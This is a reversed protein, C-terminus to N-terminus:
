CLNTMGGLSWNVALRWAATASSMLKVFKESSGLFNLSVSFTSSMSFFSFKQGGALGMQLIFMIDITHFTNISWSSNAGQSRERGVGVCRSM